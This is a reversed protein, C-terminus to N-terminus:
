LTDLRQALIVRGDDGPYRAIIKYGLKKTFWLFTVSPEPFQRTRVIGFKLGQAIFNKLRADYMQSALKRDRFLTAVGIENQFAVDNKPAEEGFQTWFGAKIPIHFEDSELADLTAPFGWTFGVVVGDSMVVFATAEETIRHRIEKEVHASEWFDVVPQNCHLFGWQQLLPLDNKGWYHKCISCLKWENWPTDSFVDRYCQILLPIIEPQLNPNFRVITISM